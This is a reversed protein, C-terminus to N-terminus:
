KRKLKKILPKHGLHRKITEHLAKALSMKAESVTPHGDIVRSAADHAPFYTDHYPEIKKKRVRAM